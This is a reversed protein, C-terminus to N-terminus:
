DRGGGGIRFLGDEGKAAEMLSGFAAAVAEENQLNSDMKGSFEDDKMSVKFEITKRGSDMKANEKKNAHAQFPQKNEKGGLVLATKINLPQLKVELDYEINYSRYLYSTLIEYSHDGYKRLFECLGQTLLGGRKNAIANTRDKACLVIFNGALPSLNKKFMNKAEGIDAFNGSGGNCCDFVLLTQSGQPFRQLVKYIDDDRLDGGVMQIVSDTKEDEGGPLGFGHASFYILTIDEPKVFDAHCYMVDLWKGPTIDVFEEIFEFGYENLSAQINATDKESYACDTMRTLIARKM